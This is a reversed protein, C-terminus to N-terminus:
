QIYSNHKFIAFEGQRVSKYLASLAKLKSNACVPLHRALWYHRRNLLIEFPTM